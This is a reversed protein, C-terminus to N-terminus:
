RYGGWWSLEVTNGMSPVPGNGQTSHRILLFLALEEIRMVEPGARGVVALHLLLSFPVVVMGVGGQVM